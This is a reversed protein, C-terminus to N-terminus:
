KTFSPVDLVVLNVFSKSCRSSFLNIPGCKLNFSLPLMEKGMLEKYQILTSSLVLIQM